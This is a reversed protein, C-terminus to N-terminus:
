SCIVKIEVEMQEGKVILHCFSICSLHYLSLPLECEGIVWARRM